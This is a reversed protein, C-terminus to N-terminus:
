IHLPWRRAKNIESCHVFREYRVYDAGNLLKRPNHQPLSSAAWEFCAVPLSEDRQTHTEILYICNLLGQILGRSDHLFYSRALDLQRAEVSIV